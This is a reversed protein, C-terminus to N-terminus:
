DILFQNPDIAKYYMKQYIYNIKEKQTLNKFNEFYIPKMSEKHEETEIEIIDSETDSNSKSSLISDSNNNIMEKIIILLDENYNIFYKILLSKLLSLKYNTIITYYIKKIINIM